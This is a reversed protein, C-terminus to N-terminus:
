DMETQRQGEIRLLKDYLVNLTRNCENIEQMIQAPLGPVTATDTPQVSQVQEAVEAEEEEGTEISVADISTGTHLREQRTPKDETKQQSATWSELAEYYADMDQEDQQKRKAVDDKMLAYCYRQGSM